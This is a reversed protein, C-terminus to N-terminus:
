SVGSGAASLSVASFSLSTEQGVATRLEAPSSVLLHRRSAANPPATVAAAHTAEQLEVGEGEAGPPAVAVVAGAVGDRVDPGAVDPGAVDPGAVDPVVVVAWVGVTGNCVAVAPSNRDGDAFMLQSISSPADSRCTKQWVM